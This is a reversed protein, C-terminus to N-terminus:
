EESAASRAVREVRRTWLELMVASWVFSQTSWGEVEMTALARAVEARRVWREARWAGDEVIERLGARHQTVHREVASEFTTVHTRERIMPPLLPGLADRLLAKMRGQPLREEWPVSLVTRALAADLFPFRMTVGLRAAKLEQVEVHWSTPASTLWRWAFAHTYSPARDIPPRAETLRARARPVLADGLWRPLERRPPAVLRRRVAFLWPPLVAHAADRLLEETSRTSYRPALRAEHVLRRWAHAAALDRFVGREFFLQDGGSGSLSVRAGTRAIIAREGALGSTPPTGPHLLTPPVHDALSSSTGDFRESPLGTHRAVADIFPGEDCPLGPYVASVTTLPGTGQYLDGRRARDGTGQYLHAAACVISSSDLGGSLEALVPTDADIAHEVAGVFRARVEDLLQRRSRGHQLEPPHFWREVRVVGREFVARHGPPVRRVHTFFTQEIARYDALLHELVLTDDVDLPVGGAALSELESAFLVRPGVRAWFLPRQGFADRAAFLRERAADWLVFAFHGDLHAPADVGWRAYADAIRATDAARAGDRRLHSDAVLALEREADVLPAGRTTLALGCAFREWDTVVLGDLARHPAVALM